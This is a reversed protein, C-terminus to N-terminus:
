LKIFVAIIIAVVILVFALGNILVGVTRVTSPKQHEANDFNFLALCALVSMLAYFSTAM